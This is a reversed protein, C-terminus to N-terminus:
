QGDGAGIQRLTAERQRAEDLLGALGLGRGRQASTTELATRVREYLALAAARNTLEQRAGFDLALRCAAAGWPLPAADALTRTAWQAAGRAHQGQEDPVQAAHYRTWQLEAHARVLRPGLFAIAAALLVLSVPLLLRGRARRSRPPPV